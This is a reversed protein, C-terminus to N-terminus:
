DILQQEKAVSVAQIRRTVKLKSFINKLHFKVTNDTMDLSYAIEKNSKGFSLEELVQFERDSLLSSKNQGTKLIESLFNTVLIKDVENRIRGRASRLLRVASPSRFPQIIESPAALELATVVTDVAEKRRKAGDLAIAQNLLCRILFFNANIGSVIMRLSQAIRLAERFEGTKILYRCSALGAYMRVIWTPTHLKRTNPANHKKVEEFLIAAKRMDNKVLLITLEFCDAIVVMRSVGRQLGTERLKEIYEYAREFDRSYLADHFLADFGVVYAEFWGDYECIQYVATEFDSGKLLEIENKWYKLSSYQVTTTAKLGSDAGFNDDAMEEAQRYNAVATRFNGCYFACLGIHLLAYNLGLISNGERMSRASAHAVDNAKEFEGFAIHRSVISAQVVGRTIPDNLQETQSAQELFENDYDILPEDEYSELLVRINIYDRMLGKDSEDFNVSACAADFQARASLVDGSKLFLYSKAIQLRPYKGLEQDPFQRVLGQLYGIGGFLILEWGGANCILDSWVDFAGIQRAHQVAEATRRREGLWVAAKLHLENYKEPYKRILLENLCERFLLHYRFSRNESDLPVLLAHLSELQRLYDRSKDHGCVADALQADFSDLISTNLLFDQLESNLNSIVQDTLYNELHGTHGHLLRLSGRDDPNGGILLKAMQLAVPWGEVKSQLDLYEQENLDDGFTERIEIESFKLDNVEVSDADAALLLNTLAPSLVNRSSLCIRLQDSTHHSLEILINDVEDSQVRHYDDICLLVLKESNAITDATRKLVNSLSTGVLGVEALVSLQRMELGSLGIAQIILALFQNPDADSEDLNIWACFQEEAVNKYFWQALLTSKGYGAPATILSFPRDKARSLKDMLRQRHLIASTITPPRLKSRSLWHEDELENTDEPSTAHKSMTLDINITSFNNFATGVFSGNRIGNQGVTRFSGM